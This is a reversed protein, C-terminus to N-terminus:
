SWFHAPPATICRSNIPREGWLTKGKAQMM